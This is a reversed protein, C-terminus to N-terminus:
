TSYNSGLSIFQEVRVKGTVISLIDEVLVSVFPNPKTWCPDWRIFDLHPIGEYIAARSKVGLNDLVKHFAISNEPPVTVESPSSFMICPPMLDSWFSPNGDLGHHTQDLDKSSPNKQPSTSLRLSGFLLAPSASFFGSKGGMARGMISLHQVGRKAEYAYHIGIDYVGAMGLFCHPMRSRLDKPPSDNAERYKLIRNLREWLVLGSLHAGASHGMMYVREPDGGFREVHKMTWTLASSVEEAMQPALAQPFLTYQVFVALVGHDALYAGMSCTQWKEGSAWIGGHIFMVVPLPGALGPVDPIYVDLLNRKADGYRLNRLLTARPRKIGIVKAFATICRNYFHAAGSSSRSLEPQVEYSPLSDYLLRYYILDPILGLLDYVERLLLYSLKAALSLRPIFGRAQMVETAGGKMAQWVMSAMDRGRVRVRACLAFPPSVLLAFPPSFLLPLVSFAYYSCLCCGCSFFCM